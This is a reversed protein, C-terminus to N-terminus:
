VPLYAMGDEIAGILAVQNEVSESFGILVQERSMGHALQDTWYSYGAPDPARDLVNGYLLTVFQADTPHAGYLSQFEASGVFGTAVQSLALGQDMASIWSGLGELDPARDFAAQYLRYIQGASGDTDFALSVDFFQLREVSTLTDTGDVAAKGAVTLVDGGRTITVDARSAAYVSTDVGEGGDLVDNGGLGILVDNGAQGSLTEGAGTGILLDDGDNGMVPNPVQYAIGGALQPAVQAMHEVSESFLVLVQSKTLAGSALQELWFDLRGSEPLRGLVDNYLGAVFQAHTESSAHVAMYAPSTMLAAAMQDLTIGNDLATIWVGLGQADPTQHYASAYLRWAQGASGMLDLALNMDAFQLREVGTLTDRGGANVLDTVMWGEGNRAVAYNARADSYVATDLGDCGHLIDDDGLGILVDNNCGGTITDAYLEGVLPLVGAGANLTRGQPLSEDDNIITATGQAKGLAANVPGSLRLQFTEDAEFVTDGNVQVSVSATTQGPAFTVSGSHAAYDGPSSATGDATAYQVSVPQASTASLTLTFVALSTGSQGEQLRVDAVSIAPVVVGDDNLITGTAVADAITVKVAPPSTPPPSNTPPGDTPPADTTPSGGTVPTGNTPPFFVDDVIVAQLATSAGPSPTPLLEQGSGPEGMSIQANSLRVTFAEDPEFIEDGIIQVSITKVTEGPSFAVTGSGGIFDGSNATGPETAWDVSVVGTSPVSLYVDFNMTTTGPGDGELQQADRISVEIQPVGSRVKFSWLGSQTGNTSNELDLMAAQNGSQPLEFYNVGDGASYGARAVEGGLGGVGDSADGTTWNIDEYRFLVDFDADGVRVIQMQFANLKDTHGSFYGVDDWSMTITGTVPDIDYWLLNTGRSTGGPTVGGPSGETDVDAFFAAIIPNSTFGTIASPTYEYLPEVFTINGNNNIYFGNWVTGFFNLGNPFVARIDIWQTSEDDNAPLSNEGFGAVGGLNNVLNSSM